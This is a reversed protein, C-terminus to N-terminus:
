FMYSCSATFTRNKYNYNSDIGKGVNKLGWDYGVAIQIHRAVEIGIRFGVGWDFREMVKDSFVNDVRAHETSKGGDPTVTEKTKGFLGINFYPGANVFLGVHRGISFKYGLHIPISLYYPTCDWRSYQALQNGGTAGVYDANYYYAPQKWGHSSLMLGFDAYMGKTVQPLGLEGKVGVHFGSKSDYRSPTSLNYGGTVGMRFEQGKSSICMSLACLMTFVIKRM